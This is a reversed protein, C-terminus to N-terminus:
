QYLRNRNFGNWFFFGGIIQIAGVLVFALIEMGSDMLFSVGMISLATGGAMLLLRGGTYAGMIENPIVEFVGTPVGLDVFTQGLFMLFYFGIFVDASGAFVMCVLGASGALSGVLCLRGAGIHKILLGFIVNAFIAAMTGWFVLYTSYIPALGLKKMGVAMAFYSGGAAIGRSINPLAFIRFARARFINSLAAFASIGADPLVGPHLELIKFGLILAAAVAFFLFSVTFLLMFGGPFGLAGLVASSVISFFVSAISVLAGDVALFQGCIEIRIIQTFVKSELMNKLSYVLNQATVAAVLFVLMTYSSMGPFFAIFVLALPTLTIFFASAALMHIGNGARDAIGMFILIGAISAVNSLTGILGISTTSLGTKVLYAQVITNSAFIMAAGFLTDRILLFIMNRREVPNSAMRRLINKLPMQM